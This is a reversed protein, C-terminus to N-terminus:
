RLERLQRYTELQDPKLISSLDDLNLVLGARVKAYFNEYLQDKQSEELNLQASLEELEWTAHAEWQAKDLAQEYARYAEWQADRVGLDFIFTGEVMLELREQMATYEESDTLGRMELDRLGIEYDTQTKLFDRLASAQTENLGLRAVLGLLRRESRVELRDRYDEIMRDMATHVAEVDSNFRAGLQANDLDWELRSRNAELEAIKLQARHLREELVSSLTEPKQVPIEALGFPLSQGLWWGFGMGLLFFILM